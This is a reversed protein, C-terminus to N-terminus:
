EGGCIVSSRVPEGLVIRRLEEAALRQLSDLADESVWASHPTLIVNEYKCLCYDAGYASHGEVVDLGAGSILGRQLARELAATDILEGRATNVIMPRRKMRSFTADDLMHWTEKTLPSQLIIIDSSELAAKMEVKQAMADQAVFPDYFQLRCGFGSLKKAILRGIRGYGFITVVSKGLNRIPHVYDLSYDGAKIRGSSLTIRRALSLAIACAHDSVEELCYDPVNAVQIGRAKAAALDITDYGIGSRVIGKLGPMGDMVAGSIDPLYTTLIADADPALQKLQASDTCQLEIVQAGVPELIARAPALNQYVHDTIYVKYM